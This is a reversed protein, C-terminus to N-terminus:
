GTCMVSKRPALDKRMEYADQGDAYYGASVEKVDYKLRDKYLGLAGRNGVRVHLSVYKCDQTVEMADHAYKM